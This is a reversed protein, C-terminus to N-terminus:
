VNGKMFEENGQCAWQLEGCLAHPGFNKVCMTNCGWWELFGLDAGTVKHIYLMQELYLAVQTYINIKELELHAGTQM